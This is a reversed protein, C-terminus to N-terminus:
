HEKIMTIRLSKEGMINHQTREADEYHYFKRM